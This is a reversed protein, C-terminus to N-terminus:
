SMLERIEKAAAAQAEAEQKLERTLEALTDDSEAALAAQQGQLRGVVTMAELLRQVLADRTRECRALTDLWGEPRAALRDRQREFRGLNEDLQALDTAAGCAAPLLEALSQGLGRDDGTHELRTALAACMRVLDALLNRATGPPLESLTQVVQRELTVPLGSRHALPLVLPTRSARGVGMVLLAGILPTTALLTPSVAIGATGGVGLVAAFLMWFGPPVAEWARSASLPRSELERRKLEDVLRPASGSAVRFLPREGSAAADRDAARLEPMVVALRLAAARRAQASQEPQLFVLTDAADSSGGGCAPCIGLSLPDPGGCLMCPAAPGQALAPSGRGTLAEGFAAATSYRNEAAATTAQAIVEDLWPPVAPAVLRPHFGGEASTPPLHASPREPLDGTLAFYLTLGLAYVDARADGRRGALVEPSTYALTGALTGTGTVGLQGDLKASGFDTLRARGDPELLVNPPKVDRHLIGRRHATTLAAAIDRGVQVAQEADLPGHERVRVQLDPGAVYEMVIFSWPGDELFDFVAVINAHSLGRVAQVERRMRERAVQAAAPSPVLLKLAVESGVTRDKALYVVSYGGRGLERVIEYRGALVAGPELFSSATM